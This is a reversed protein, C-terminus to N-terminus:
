QNFRYSQNVINKYHVYIYFILAKPILFYSLYQHYLELKLCVLSKSISKFFYGPLKYQVIFCMMQM